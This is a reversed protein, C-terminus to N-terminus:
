VSNEIHVQLDVMIDEVEVKRLQYGDDQKVNNSYHNWHKQAKRVVRATIDFEKYDLLKKAKLSVKFSGFLYLKFLDIYHSIVDFSELAMMLDGAQASNEKNLIAQLLPELAEENNKVLALTRAAKFRSESNPHNLLEIMAKVVEDSGIRGLADSAEYANDTIEGSLQTVYNSIDVAM